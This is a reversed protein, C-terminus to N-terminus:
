GREAATPVRAVACREVSWAGAGANSRGRYRRAIEDAGVDEVLALGHPELLGPLAQPSVAFQWPEGAREAAAASQSALGDPTIYTFAVQSGPVSAGIFALTASVAPPSLYQSVGEWLFATPSDPAMGARALADSLSETEFDIPASVIARPRPARGLREARWRLNVARDLEFVPTAADEAIRFARSDLGVGLIVGQECAALGQRFADDLYRTRLVLGELVSPFRWEFIAELAWRVPPLGCARAAFRAAPSLLLGAAFPDEFLREHPSRSSEIARSMAVSQATRSPGPETM